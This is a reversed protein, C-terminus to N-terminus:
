TTKFSPATAQVEYRGPLLNPFAYIGDTTMVTRVNRTALDTATVTAVPVVNGVQDLVTGTIQGTETQGFACPALGTLAIAFFLVGVMCLLISVGWRGIMNGKM